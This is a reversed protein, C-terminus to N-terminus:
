GRRTGRETNLNPIGTVNCHCVEGGAGLITKHIDRVVRCLIFPVNTLALQAEVAGRIELEFGIDYLKDLPMAFETPNGYSVQVAQQVLKTKEVPWAANANDTKV